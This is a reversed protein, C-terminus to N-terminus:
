PAVFVLFYHQTAVGGPLRAPEPLCAANKHQMCKAPTTKVHDNSKDFIMPNNKVVGSEVIEVIKYQWDCNIDKEERNTHSSINNRLNGNTIIIIITTFIIIITNGSM